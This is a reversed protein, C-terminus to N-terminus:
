KDEIILNHKNIYDQKKLGEISEFQDIYREFKGPESKLYKKRDEHMFVIEKKGNNKFLVKEQLVGEEGHKGSSICGAGAVAEGNSDNEWTTLGKEVAKHKDIIKVPIM